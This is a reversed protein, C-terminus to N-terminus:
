AKSLATGVWEFHAGDPRLWRGGWTFGHKAMIAVLRPDQHPKGGLPNNKVNLDVAIGWSHASVSGGDSFRAIRPAFCGGEYQFDATDVLAGLKDATIEKMAAELDPLIAKNCEVPGLQTITKTRIWTNIWATDPVFAGDAATKLSFEGFRRKIELQTLVTDYSSLFGNATRSKVRVTRTPLQAKMVAQLAAVSAMGGVLLYAAPQKAPVTLVQDSSAMEYGGLVQDPVVATIPFTRGDSLTISDGVTQKRLDAETAALVVGGTLNDALAPRGAAAAYSAADVLLTAVPTLPFAAETGHLTQETSYVATVPGSIHATISALEARTFGHTAYTLLRGEFLGAPASATPCDGVGCALDLSPAASPAPGTTTQEASPTSRAAVPRTSNGTCGALALVTALVAFCRNPIRRTLPM